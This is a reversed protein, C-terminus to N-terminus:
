YVYSVRTVDPSSGVDIYTLLGSNMPRDPVVATRLGVDPHHKTPFCACSPPRWQQREIVKTGHGHMMSVIPPLFM